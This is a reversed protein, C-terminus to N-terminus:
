MARQAAPAPCFEYGSGDCLFEWAGLHARQESVGFQEHGAVVACDAAAALGCCCCSRCCGAQGLGIAPPAKACTSLRAPPGGSLWSCGWLSVWLRAQGQPCSGGATCATSSARRPVRTTGTTMIGAAGGHPMSGIGSRSRHSPAIYLIIGDQSPLRVLSKVAVRPQKAPLLKQPRLTHGPAAAMPPWLMSAFGTVCAFRAFCACRLLVQHAREPGGGTHAGADGPVAKGAAGRHRGAGGQLVRGRGALPFLSILYRNARTSASLCVSSMRATVQWM